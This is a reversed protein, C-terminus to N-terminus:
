FWVEEAARGGLLSIVEHIMKMKSHLYRDEDSSKWTLGLARGRSVISIKEVQDAEDLEYATVAHGLEHYTVINRETDSLSKIKKEPGMLHKELAFEFDASTLSKRGDKAIKLAAENV